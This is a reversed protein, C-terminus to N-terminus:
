DALKGAWNEVTVGMMSPLDNFLERQFEEPRIYSIMRHCQACLQRRGDEGDADIKDIYTGWLSSWRLSEIVTEDDVLKGLLHALVAACTKPRKCHPSVTQGFVRHTAKVNAQLLRAKAAFVRGLDDPALTEQSGDERAFGTVVEAELMCCVMLAAPLISAGAPGALRALNVVAITHVPEFKPPHLDSVGFWADRTDTYWKKLYALSLDVAQACQYKLGLRIYASLQHITPELAWINLASGSLFLRLLHRLDEPSDSLRMVTCDRNSRQEVSCSIGLAPPIEPCAQSLIDRLVPLHKMLTGRYVQFEVDRAILVLNGDEFWLEADRTPAASLASSSSPELLPLTQISADRRDPLPTQTEVSATTSM